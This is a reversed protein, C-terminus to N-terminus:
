SVVKLAADCVFFKKGMAASSINQVKNSFDVPNIFRIRQDYRAINNSYVTNKPEKYWNKDIFKIVTKKNKLKFLEFLIQQHWDISM